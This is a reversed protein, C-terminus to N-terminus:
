SPVWILILPSTEIRKGFTCIPDPVKNPNLPAVSVAVNLSTLSPKNANLPEAPSAYIGFQFENPVIDMVPFPCNATDADAM